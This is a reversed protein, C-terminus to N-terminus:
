IYNPLGWVFEYLLYAIVIGSTPATWFLSRLGHNGLCLKQNYGLIEDRRIYLDYLSICMLTSYQLVFIWWMVERIDTGLFSHLVFVGVFSNITALWGNIKPGRRHLVMTSWYIILMICFPLFLLVHLNPKMGWFLYGAILPPGFISLINLCLKNHGIKIPTPIELVGFLPFTFMVLTGTYLANKWHLFIQWTPIYVFFVFSLILLTSPIVGFLLLIPLLYKPQETM